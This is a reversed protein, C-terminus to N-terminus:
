RVVCETSSLAGGRHHHSVSGRLKSFFKFWSLWSFWSLAGGSGRPGGPRPAQRPTEWPDSVLARKPAELGAVDSHRVKRLAELVDGKPVGHQHFVAVLPGMVCMPDFAM